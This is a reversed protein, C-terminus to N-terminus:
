ERAALDLKGFKERPLAGLMEQFVYEDEFFILSPAQLAQAPQLLLSSRMENEGSELHSIGAGALGV